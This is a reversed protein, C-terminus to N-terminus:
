LKFHSPTEDNRRALRFALARLKHHLPNGDSAVSCKLVCVHIVTICKRGRIVALIFVCSMVGSAPRRCLISGPKIEEGKQQGCIACLCFLTTHRTKIHRGFVICSNPVPRMGPSSADDNAIRKLEDRWV